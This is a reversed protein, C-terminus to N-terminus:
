SYCLKFYRAIPITFYMKNKIKLPILNIGDVDNHCSKKKTKKKISIDIINMRVFRAYERHDNNITLYFFTYIHDTATNCFRSHIWIVPKTLHWFLPIISFNFFILGRVFYVYQTTVSYLPKKRAHTNLIFQSSKANQGFSVDGYGYLVHTM